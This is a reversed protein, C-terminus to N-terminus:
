VLRIMVSSASHVGGEADEGLIHDSEGRMECTSAWREGEGREKKVGCVGEERAIKLIFLWTKIQDCRVTERTDRLGHRPCSSRPPAPPPWDDSDHVHEPVAQDLIRTSLAKHRGSTYRSLVASEMRGRTMDRIEVKSPQLDRMAQTEAGSKVQLIKKHCRALLHSSRNKAISCV